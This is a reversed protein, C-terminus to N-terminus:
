INIGQPKTAAQTDRHILQQIYCSGKGNKSVEGCLIGLSEAEDQFYDLGYYSTGRGVSAIFQKKPHYNYHM